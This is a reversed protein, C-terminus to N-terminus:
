CAGLSSIILALYGPMFGLTGGPTARRPPATQETFPAKKDTKSQTANSDHDVLKSKEDEHTGQDHADIYEDLECLNGM